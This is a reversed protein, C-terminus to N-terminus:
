VGGALVRVEQQRFFRALFAGFVLAHQFPRVVARVAANLELALLCEPEMQPIDAVVLLLHIRFLRFIQLVTEPAILTVLCKPVLRGQLGVFLSVVRQVALHAHFKHSVWPRKRHMFFCVSGKLTVLTLGIERHKFGQVLVVNVGVIWNLREGAGMALRGEGTQLTEDSVLPFVRAVLWKLARGAAFSETRVRVEHLMVFLVCFCVREEAPFTTLFEPVADSQGSVHLAHVVGTFGDSLFGNRREGAGLASFGESRSPAKEFMVIEVVFTKPEWALVASLSKKALVSQHSMSQDVRPFPRKLAIVTVLRKSRRCLQLYVPSVMSPFPRKLTRDTLLTKYLGAKEGQVHAGM